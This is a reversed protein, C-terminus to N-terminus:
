MVYPPTPLLFAVVLLSLAQWWPVGALMLITALVALTAMFVTKGDLGAGREHKLLTELWSESLPSRM